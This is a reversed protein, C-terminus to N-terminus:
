ATHKRRRVMVYGLGLCGALLAYSSPEPIVSINDVYLQMNSYLTGTARSTTFTLTSSTSTATFSGVVTHWELDTEDYTDSTIFTTGGLAVTAVGDRSNIGPKNVMLLFDFSVDYEVGIVTTLTQEVYGGDAFRAYYTGDTAVADYFNDAETDAVAGSQTWGLLGGLDDGTTTQDEFSGNTILAASSVSLALFPISLLTLIKKM